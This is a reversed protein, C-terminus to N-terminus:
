SEAAQPRLSRDLWEMVPGNRSNLRPVFVGEVIRSRCCPRETQAITLNEQIERHQVCRACPSFILSQESGDNPGSAASRDLKIVVDRAVGGFKRQSKGGAAEM